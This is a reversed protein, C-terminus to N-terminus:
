IKAAFISQHIMLWTIPGESGGGLDLYRRLEHKIVCIHIHAFYYNDNKCVNNKGMIIIAHLIAIDGVKKISYTWFGEKWPQGIHSRIRKLVPSQMVETPDRWTSPPLCSRKPPVEGTPTSVKQGRRQDEVWMLSAPLHCIAWLHDMNNGKMSDFCLIAM